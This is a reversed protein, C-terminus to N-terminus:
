SKKLSYECLNPSHKVQKKASILEKNFYNKAKKDLCVSMAATSQEQVPIPNSQAFSKGTNITLHFFASAFLISLCFLIKEM